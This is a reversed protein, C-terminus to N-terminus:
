RGLPEYGSQGGYGDDQVYHDQGHRAAPAGPYGPDPLCGEHGHRGVSYGGPPYAAPYYHGDGRRSPGRTEFGVRGPLTGADDDGAQPSASHQPYWRGRHGTLDSALTHPPSRYGTLDSAPAHPPSRYGTLDSAPTHPPSRYGTLDSAPTHPPSRYGTLDSALTHPPSRYGTLDSALTHPPSRYGTLDQASRAPFGGSPPTGVYSGYTNGSPLPATGAASPAGYSAPIAGSRSSLQSGSVARYSDTSAPGAAWADSHYGPGPVADPYLPLNGREGAAAVPVGFQAMRSDYSAFQQTPASSSGSTHVGTRSNRFSRSDDARVSPFSPSTLPDDDLTGHVRLRVRGAAGGQDITPEDPGYGAAAPPGQPPPVPAAAFVHAAHIHAAHVPAAHVPAAHVPAAHVPAAHVPAAHVPAPVPAAPVPAPGPQGDRDHSGQGDRAPAAPQATTILPKDAALEAWYDVDSLKEWETVPWNASDDSRKGRGQRQVSDRGPRLGNGPERYDGTRDDPVGARREDHRKNDRRKDDHRRGHSSASQRPAGDQQLGSRGARAPHRIPRDSSDGERWDRRGSGNRSRSGSHGAFDEPDEPRMNRAALIVTILVVVVVAALGIVLKTMAGDLVVHGWLATCALCARGDVRAKGLLAPM